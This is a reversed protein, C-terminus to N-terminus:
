TRKEEAVRKVVIFKRIALGAAETGWWAASTGVRFVFTAFFSREPLTEAAAYATLVIWLLVGPYRTWIMDNTTDELCEAITKVSTANYASNFPLPPTSFASSYIIATNHIIKSVTTTFLISEDVSNPCPALRDTLDRMQQLVQRSQSDFPSTALVDGFSSTGFLPSDAIQFSGISENLHPPTSPAPLQIPPFLPERNTQLAVMLDILQLKWCFQPIFALNYLGGRLNIIRQLGNMHLALEQANGRTVEFSMLCLIVGITIESTALNSNGLNRNVWRIAQGKFALYDSSESIWHIARSSKLLCPRPARANPIPITGTPM